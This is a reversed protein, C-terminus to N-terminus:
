SLQECFLTVSFTMDEFSYAREIRLPARQSFFEYSSGAVVTPTSLLCGSALRPDLGKWAGAVMNSVEGVADRVLAPQPAPEPAAGMLREAMREAARRGARLVLSGSLAGALGIVASLTERDQEPVPEAPECRVGMMTSFVEDAARDLNENFQAVQEATGVTM